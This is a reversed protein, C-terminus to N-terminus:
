TVTMNGAEMFWLMGFFTNTIAGIRKAAAKQAEPSPPTDEVLTFGYKYLNKLLTLLLLKDGKMIDDYKMKPPNDKISSDWLIVERTRKPTIVKDKNHCYSNALLWEYSYQSCHGDVWEVEVSSSGDHLVRVDAPTADKLTNLQRQDFNPDRCLSCQCNDRLWPFHFKSWENKQSRWNVVICRDNKDVTPVVTPIISARRAPYIVRSVHKCSLLTARSVFSLM